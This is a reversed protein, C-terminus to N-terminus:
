SIAIVMGPASLDGLTAHSLGVSRIVEGPIHLTNERIQVSRSIDIAEDGALDQAVIQKGRLPRDFLISLNDFYGFVGFPGRADSAVLTVDCGPMYWAKGAKTREQAAVAVAGNPFRTAYVFPKDAKAKVEPLPMNRSIRAPAGQRVVAGVLEKQWTQTQEFPWSDILIEDDISVKGEGPSFPPAIRQWRVARVVEDLRKKAQRPGNWFLDADAGPRKGTLPHRMVGMTCGMVAAVYVEDEVNLLGKVEPHGEAGQLMAALRDLTTPLSLISTVDYTRYVDTNRLITMRRSDWPQAGFRGDSHWDGNVPLEGHVHEFTLPLHTENRVRVLGFSPDGIDIKWYRIAASDSLTELRHIGNGEPTNRCWLAAGRWGSNQVVANLKRLRESSTGSFSPFKATDLEFTATGGTEWGDDLLLYLDSRIKPYLSKAWGSEAFLNEETMATRALNAGSDGELIAADLKTLNQGYMYNQVAWTCWYHPAGSPAAPVLSTGELRKLGTSQAFSNLAPAIAAATSAALFRRRSVRM